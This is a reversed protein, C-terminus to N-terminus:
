VGEGHFHHNRSEPPAVLDSLNNTSAWTVVDQAKLSAKALGSGSDSDGREMEKVGAIVKGSTISGLPM